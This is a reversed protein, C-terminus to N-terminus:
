FLEKGLNRSEEISVYSNKKIVENNYSSIQKDEAEKLPAKSNNKPKDEKEEEEEKENDKIMKNAMVVLEKSTKMEGNLLKFTETENDKKEKKDDAENAKNDKDEEKKEVKKEKKEEAKKESENDKKDKDEEEEEKTNDFLNSKFVLGEKSNDFVESAKFSKGEIIINTKELDMEKEKKSNNFFKFMAAGILNSIGSDKKTSKSNEMIIAEEYRPENVLAMHLGNANIIERDYPVNNYTGGERTETAMFSCSVTMGSNIAQLGRDDDIIIDIVRFGNSSNPNLKGCVGVKLDDINGDTVFGHEIITASGEFNKAIKDLNEERILITEDDYKVTGARIFEAKFTKAKLLTAM